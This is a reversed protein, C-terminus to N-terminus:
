PAAGPAETRRPSANKGGGPVAADAPSPGGRAPKAEVTRLVAEALAFVPYACADAIAADVSVQVEVPYFFTTGGEKVPVSFKYAARTGLRRAYVPVGHDGFRLLIPHEPQESRAPRLPGPLALSRMQVFAIRARGSAGDAMLPREFKLAFNKEDGQSAMEWGTPRQVTFLLPTKAGVRM